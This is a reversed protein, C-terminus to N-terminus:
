SRYVLWKSKKKFERCKIPEIIINGGSNFNTDTADFIKIMVM